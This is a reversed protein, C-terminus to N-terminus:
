DEYKGRVCDNSILDRLYALRKKREKEQEEASAYIKPELVSEEATRGLKFNIKEINRLHDNKDANHKATFFKFYYKDSIKRTNLFGDEGYTALWRRQEAELQNNQQKNCWFDERSRAQELRELNGNKIEWKLNKNSNNSIRQMMDINALEVAKSLGFGKAGIRIAGEAILLNEAHEILM